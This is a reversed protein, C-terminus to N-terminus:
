ARDDFKGSRPFGRPVLRGVSARRGVYENWDAISRTRGSADIVAFGDAGAFCALDLMGGDKYTQLKVGKGRPMEPLEALPFILLKRNEGIVAVHDGAVAFCHTLRSGDAPNVVQKGAKRASLLEGEPVVFGYGAGSAVARKRGEDLAFMAILQESDGLDISLRIPEGQGRGGPLKDAGLTFARGDTAMLILRDTTWLQASLHLKDGDKFKVESVDV